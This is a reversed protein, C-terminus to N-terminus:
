KKYTNSIIEIGTLEEYFIEQSLFGDKEYFEEVMIYKDNGYLVRKIQGTKYRDILMVDFPYNRISEEILKHNWFIKDYNQNEITVRLNYRCSCLVKASEYLGKYTFFLSDGLTAKEIYEFGKFSCPERFTLYISMSDKLHAISDVKDIKADSYPNRSVM